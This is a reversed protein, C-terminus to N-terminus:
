SSLQQSFLAAYESLAKYNGADVVVEAASGGASCVIHDTQAMWYRVTALFLSLSLVVCLVPSFGEQM